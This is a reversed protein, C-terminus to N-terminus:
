DTVFNIEDNRHHFHIKITHEEHLVEYLTRLWLGIQPCPHANVNLPAQHLISDGSKLDGSTPMEPLITTM